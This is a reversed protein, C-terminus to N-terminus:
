PAVKTRHGPLFQNIIAVLTACLLLAAGLVTLVLGGLAGPGTTTTCIQLSCGSPPWAANAGVNGNCYGFILGLGSSLCLVSVILLRDIRM